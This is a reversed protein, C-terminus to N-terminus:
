KLDTIYVEILPIEKLIATMTGIFRSIVRVPRDNRLVFHRLLGKVNIECELRSIAEGSADPNCHCIELFNHRPM